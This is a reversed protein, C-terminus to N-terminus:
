GTNQVGAAIGNVTAGLAQFLADEPRGAARWRALLDVQLLSIPDVYPNRLRISQALRQDHQLVTDRERLALIADRCRAFEAHIRAHFPAHRAGALLSYREFIAMDSKALVMEVDDLLTAFFPWDRAMEAIAPRGHQEIAGQLATGVGYWGTLGARTQSWAFVWPIARLSDVGGTDGRRSPRSGIRLREIVDIPTAARFYATFEPDEHVLARYHRRSAEAMTAAM